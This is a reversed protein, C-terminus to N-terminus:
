ELHGPAWNFNISEVKLFIPLAVLLNNNHIDDNAHVARFYVSHIKSWEEIGISKCIQSCEIYNLEPM